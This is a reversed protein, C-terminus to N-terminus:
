WGARGLTIVLGARAVVLLVGLAILTLTITSRRRIVGATAGLPLGAARIGAWGWVVVLLAVLVPDVTLLLGTVREITRERPVSACGPRCGVQGRAQEGLPSCSRGM